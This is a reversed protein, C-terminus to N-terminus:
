ENKERRFVAIIRRQLQRAGAKWNVRQQQHNGDVAALWVGDDLQWADLHHMGTANWGQGSGQLLPGEGWASELYTVSDLRNVQRVHLRSGYSPLADQVFRLLQGDRCLMRGGPRSFHMDTVSQVNGPHAEWPGHLRDASFVHCSYCANSAWMWWRGNHFIVSPDYYGGRLLVADQVWEYPFNRARYLRVEGVAGSEPIMYHVGDHLFVHPYSLHVPEALVVRDYRWTLGDVSTAHAIVGRLLREDYVEFFMHWADAARWLFPDAVFRAKVDTVDQAQLVPHGNGGTAPALMRLDRGTYISISWIDVQERGWHRCLLAVVASFAFLLLPWLPM